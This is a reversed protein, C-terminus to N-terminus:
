IRDYLKLGLFQDCKQKQNLIMFDLKQPNKVYPRSSHMIQIGADWVTRVKAPIENQAVFLIELFILTKRSFRQSRRKATDELINCYFELPLVVSYHKLPVPFVSTIRRQLSVGYSIQTLKKLCDKTGVPYCSM